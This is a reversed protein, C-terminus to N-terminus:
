KIGWKLDHLEGYETFPRQNPRSAFVILGDHDAVDTLLIASVLLGDFFFEIHSNSGETQVQEMYVHTRQGKPLYNTFNFSNGPM